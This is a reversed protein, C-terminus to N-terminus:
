GEIIKYTHTIKIAKQLMATVGCFKTLSLEIARELDATKLDSGAFVYEINIKTYVQPHEESMEAELNVYFDNLRVKKKSM